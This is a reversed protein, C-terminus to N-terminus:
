SVDSSPLEVVRHCNISLLLLTVVITTNFIVIGVIIAISSVGLLLLNENACAAAFIRSLLTSFYAFRTPFHPRVEAVYADSLLFFIRYKWRSVLRWRASMNKCLKLFHHLFTRQRGVPQNKKARPESPKTDNDVISPQRHILRNHNLEIFGDPQTARKM